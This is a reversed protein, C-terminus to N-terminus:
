YTARLVRRPESPLPSATRVREPGFCTQTWGLLAVFGAVGGSLSVGLPDSDRGCYM